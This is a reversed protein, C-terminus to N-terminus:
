KISYITPIYYIGVSWAPLITAVGSLDNFGIGRLTVTKGILAELNNSYYNALEEGLTGKDFGVERVELEVTDDLVKFQIYDFVDDRRVSSVVGEVYMPGTYGQSSISHIVDRAALVTYPNTESGDGYNWKEPVGDVYHWYNDPVIPQTEAYYYVTYSSYYTWNTSSNTMLTNWQEKTGM